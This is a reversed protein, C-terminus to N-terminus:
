RRPVCLCSFYCFNMVINRSRSAYNQDEKSAPETFKVFGENWFRHSSIESEAGAPGQIHRLTFSRRKTNVDIISKRLRNVQQKITQHKLHNKQNKFYRQSGKASFFINLNLFWNLSGFLPPSKNLFFLMKLHQLHACKFSTLETFRKLSIKRKHISVNMHKLIIQSTKLISRKFIQLWM